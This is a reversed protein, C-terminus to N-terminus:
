GTAREPGRQVGEALPDDFQGHIPALAVFPFAVREILEAAAVDLRREGGVAVVSADDEGVPGLVEVRDHEAVPM